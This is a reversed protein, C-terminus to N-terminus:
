PRYPNLEFKAILDQVKEVNERYREASHADSGFSVNKGGLEVYRQLVEIYPLCLSRGKVSTNIELVKGKEIIKQLIEDYLEAYDTYDIRQCSLAYRFPYGLHGVIQWPYDANLSQLVKKLYKAYIERVTDTQWCGATSCELGNVLHVSNIIYDFRYEEVLEKYRACADFAYGFEIGFLIKIKDSYKERLRLIETYYAGINCLPTGNGILACDFDYHESFGISENGDTVAKKVYNEAQEMGDYSFITHVHLDPIFLRNKNM